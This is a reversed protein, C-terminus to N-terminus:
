DAITNVAGFFFGLIVLLLILKENDPIFYIANSLYRFIYPHFGINQSKNGKQSPNAILVIVIQLPYPM